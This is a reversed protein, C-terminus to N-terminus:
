ASVALPQASVALGRDWERPPIMRPYQRPSHHRALTQSPLEGFLNRYWAAFRGLEPINWRLAASTITCAAEAETVLEHRIRNLRLKQVYSYPTEDLVLQFARHLTRHSTAAAKAIKDISLPQDLHAHIFARARAVIRALGRPDTGGIQLRPARAFHGIMADLLQAGTMRADPLDGHGGAHLREFQTRLRALDAAAFRRDADIGTGGLTKADLVLDHQAAVDELRDAALTVVAYMSGAPYLADHEDGPLFVGVAGTEVENLWHRTGPAMVLGVGLTVMNTSLPGSLAVRGSISGSTCIIGDDFAAFTLSGTVPARSLQTVELGAGLVADSLDEVSALPIRTWGTTQSGLM